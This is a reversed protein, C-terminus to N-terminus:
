PAEKVHGGMVLPKNIAPVPKTDGFVECCEYAAALYNVGDVYNDRHPEPCTRVRSVKLLAVIMSADHATYPRGFYASLLDSFHDMNGVFSGYTKQRDGVTLAKADDLIQVRADTMM